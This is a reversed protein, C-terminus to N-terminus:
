NKTMNQGDSVFAADGNYTEFVASQIVSLANLVEPDPCGFRNDKSLSIVSFRANAASVFEPSLHDKSGYHPVSLVDSKLKTGLTEALYKQVDASADSPLLFTSDGYIIELIISDDTQSISAASPTHLIKIYAGGGIDLADASKVIDTKVHKKSLEDQIAKYASNGSVAGDDFYEGVAYDKVIDPMGGIHAEDTNTVLVGDLSRDYFPLVRGLARLVSADGGADILFQDGNPSRVFVASGEGVNLFVVKLIGDTNENWVAYFILIVAFLFIALSWIKIKKLDIHKMDTEIEEKRLFVM